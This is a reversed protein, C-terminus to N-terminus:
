LIELLKKLKDLIKMKQKNVAPQSIGLIAAVQRESMSNFFLNLMLNRENESLSNLAIYLKNQAFKAGVIEDVLEDSIFKVGNELLWELSDEKSPTYGIVDGAADRIPKGFKIDHEYYRMRRKARYYCLYIEENVEILEESVRIFYNRQCMAM